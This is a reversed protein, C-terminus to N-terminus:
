KSNLHAERLKAYKLFVYVSSLVAIVFGYYGDRFGQQILYKKFFAAIPSIILKLLGPKKKGSKFYDKAMLESYRNIKEAHSAITPYSFHLLDGKLLKPTNGKFDVTEHIAGVWQACEKRWIRLKTEPYWGSHRIWQGCYNPRLNIRFGDATTGKKIEAISQQLEVSLAEDADISLIWQSSALKNGYNKADSYDVFPREIFQVKPYQLALAKTNDTSCSDIIIIEECLDLLSLICREINAAENKTLIVASLTEMLKLNNKGFIFM